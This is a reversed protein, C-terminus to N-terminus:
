DRFPLCIYGRCKYTFQPIHSYHGSLVGKIIFLNNQVINLNIAISRIESKTLKDHSNPCFHIAENPALRTSCTIIINYITSWISKIIHDNNYNGWNVYYTSWIWFLTFNSDNQVNSLIVRGAGIFRYRTMQQVLECSFYVLLLNLDIAILKFM